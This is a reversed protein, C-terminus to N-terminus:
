EFTNLKEESEKERKEWKEIEIDLGKKYEEGIKKIKSDKSEEFYKLLSKRMKYINSLNGTWSSEPLKYPMMNRIITKNCSYHEFIYISVEKWVYINNDLYYPKLLYSIEEEKGNKEIFSIMVNDPINNFLNSSDNSVNIVYILVESLKRKKEFLVELFEYSFEKVLRTIYNNYNNIYVRNDIMFNIYNRFISKVLECDNRDLFKKVILKLMYDIEPDIREKKLKLKNNLFTKAFKKVKDNEKEYNSLIYIILNDSDNRKYLINLIKIVENSNINKLKFRLPKFLDLSINEDSLLSQIRKIGDDDLDLMLQIEIFSSQFGKKIYMEDVLLKYLKNDDKNLLNLIYAIITQYIKDNKETINSILFSILKYKDTASKYIGEAFTYFYPLYILCDNDILLLNEFYDEKIIDNGLSLLNEKLIREGEDIDEFSYVFDKCRLYVIIRDSISVPECKKQLINLRNLLIANLNESNYKKIREIENWLEPWSEGKLVMYAIEEVYDYIETNVLIRFNDTITKKSKNRYKDIETLEKLFGLVSKYWAIKEEQSKPAYGYDRKRSDYRPNAFAGSIDLQLMEHILYFSFEDLVEDNISLMNRISDIRNEVTAHTGSLAIHFLKKIIEKEQNINNISEKENLIYNSLINIVRVFYKDEYAIDILIEKWEFNNYNHFSSYFEETAKEEITNLFEDPIIVGICEMIKMNNNYIDNIDIKELYKRACEIAYAKNYLYKLRRYFSIQLRENKSIEELLIDVPYYSFIKDALNNAIAPPLIACMNGRKQIVQRKYIENIGELFEVPTVGVIDSLIKIENNNEDNYKGDFSIVLSCVQGIKLLQNNVENNQYFLREFIKNYDLIGINEKKNISRAIYKAIRFNGNSCDAIVNINNKSIYSYDRELLKVIVDKSSSDLYYNYSEIKNDEKVDYEITLLGIKGNSNNCLIALEDHYNKDCNDVIIIVEQELLKLEQILLSPIPALTISMDGYIVTNKDLSNKGIKENFLEKAFRTKGVGSLGALRIVNKKNLLDRIENIGQELTIKNNEGFTDRYLCINSDMIYENEELDNSWNSYNTWGVTAHSIKEKVWIIIQAYKNCWTALRNADYFDAEINNCKYESLIKKISNIREKRKKDTLCDGSSVIVYKGNVINLEKISPKLDANKVMENRQSSEPMKPKKVQYIINHNNIEFGSVLKHANNIEVRVDVGGDSEDQKGSYTVCIPSVNQKILSIECLKGVLNRLDSDNLKQIDEGTLELYM